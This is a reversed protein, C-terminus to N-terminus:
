QLRIIITETERYILPPPRKSSITVIRRGNGYLSHSTRFLHLAVGSKLLQEIEHLVHRERRSVFPFYFSGIHVGQEDFVLTPVQEHLLLEHNLQRIQPKTLVLGVQNEGLLWCTVNNDVLINKHEGFAQCWGKFHARYCKIAREQKGRSQLEDLIRVSLENESVQRDSGTLDYNATHLPM